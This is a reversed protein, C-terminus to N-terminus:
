LQLATTPGPGSGRNQDAAALGKIPQFHPLFESGGRRRRRRRKGGHVSSSSPLRESRAFVRAYDGRPGRFVSGLSALPPLCLFHRGEQETQESCRTEEGDVPAHSLPLILLVSNFDRCSDAPGSM